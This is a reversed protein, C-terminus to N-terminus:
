AVLVEGGPVRGPLMVEEHLEDRDRRFGWVVVAVGAKALWPLKGSQEIKRKRAAFNSASTWQIAILGGTELPTAVGDFIGLFDHSASVWRKTRPDVSGKVNAEIMSWGRLNCEIMARADTWRDSSKRRSAM